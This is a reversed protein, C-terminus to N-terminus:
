ALNQPLDLLKIIKSLFDSTERYYEQESLTNWSIMQNRFWTMQRKAYRRTNRQASLCAAELSMEGRALATLEKLGLAKMATRSPPLNLLRMAEAEQRAGKEVMDEFRSDCREYLWTRSPMLLLKLAPMTLVPTVPDNQWDTLSRGTAQHVELARLIRQTDTPELRRHAAPDIDELSAHLAQAGEASHRARVAKRIQEPIDPIDAMGEELCKFYLGTGGVLIPLQGAGCAADIAARAESLWRGVSYDESAPVHGYLRHACRAMEEETPRATLVRMERYVQMSDANIICAEGFGAIEAALSLALSSKGSATAGAILLIEARNGGVADSSSTVTLNMFSVDQKRTRVHM